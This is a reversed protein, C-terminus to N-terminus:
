WTPPTGDTTSFQLVNPLLQLNPDNSHYLNTTTNTNGDDRV